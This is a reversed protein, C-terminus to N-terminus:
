RALSPSSVMETVRVADLGQKGPRGFPDELNLMVHFLGSLVTQVLCAFALSVELNTHTTGDVDTTRSLYIYYPGYFVSILLIYTRAFARFGRPTRYEKLAALTDFAIAMKSIYQDLRHAEGGPLGRRKLDQVLM